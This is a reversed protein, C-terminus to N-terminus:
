GLAFRSTILGMSQGRRHRETKVSDNLLPARLVGRSACGAERDKIPL